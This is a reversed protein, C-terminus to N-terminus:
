CSALERVLKVVNVDVVSEAWSDPRDLQWEAYLHKAWWNRHQIVAILTENTIDRYEGAECRRYLNPMRPLEGPRDQEAYDGAIVIRDGAWGGYPADGENNLLLSSLLHSVPGTAVQGAKLGCGAKHPCLYEKKTLNVILYYQGM